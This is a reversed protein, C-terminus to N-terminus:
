FAMLRTIEKIQQQLEEINTSSDVKSILYKQETIAGLFM